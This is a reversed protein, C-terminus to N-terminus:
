LVEQKIPSMEDGSDGKSSANSAEDGGSHLMTGQGCTEGLGGLPSADAASDFGPIPGLTPQGLRAYRAMDVRLYQLLQFNKETLETVPKRKFRWYVRGNTPHRVQEAIGLGLDAM